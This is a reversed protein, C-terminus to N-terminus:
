ILGWINKFLERFNGAMREDHIEVLYHPEKDTVIMVLYDGLVWTTASFMMGKDWPKIHRRTFNETKMEEEIPASNSLLNLSISEDATRWFWLIYEKYQEVFTHDQFGWWINDYNGISTNWTPTQTHMYANLRDQEIFRVRPVPYTRSSKMLALENGLQELVLAKNKLEEEDRKLISALEDPATPLLKLTKDGLDEILLGRAVLKKCINYVTPRNLKTERAILAPTCLRHRVVQSYVAIESESLGLKSLIPKIM